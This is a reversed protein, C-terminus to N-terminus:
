VTVATVVALGRVTPLIEYEFPHDLCFLQLAAKVGPCCPTNVDDLLMVGTDSLCRAAKELDTYAGQISHDGDIHFLDVDNLGFDDVELTNVNALHVTTGRYAPTWRRVVDLCGPEYQECDYGYVLSAQHGDLMAKLSYGFRVGVEALVYPQVVQAIAWYWAYTDKEQLYPANRDQEQLVPRLISLDTPADAYAKKVADLDIM